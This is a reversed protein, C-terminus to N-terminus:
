AATAMALSMMFYLPNFLVLMAENWGLVVMVGYMWYPVQAISSVTSRKAEVYYADADRRFRATIDLSKFESFIILSSPFDFDEESTSSGTTDSPPPPPTYELSPDVPSIKSYLPILALTQEKAKRFEGDIDDDPQWVRPVGQDDYRFREEFHSRLKGLIVNDAAQEDIKARLALWARQHLSSLAVANEDETCNFAKAKKLYSSEANNLLQKFAGLVRDWMDPAAKNLAVDVPESIQRKFNREILNVMKKTEDKRCIDAVNGMEERLLGMEEEWSWENEEICAEKAGEQFKTEYNGTAKGVVDAFNYGDGNLAAHLASKFASLCVKHLNKLQSLFLPSLISAITAHLDLRKRSYVGQHYRSADRDYRALAQDRWDRMLGGLGEVVRGAEVTRKQSKAQQNFEALATASIEDCRFQALLEQQTPLDLDKNTQVQEWINEMYLAVGDAPIRKHYVDKFLYDGRGKMTFRERLLAVEDEFRQAELIKHPLTTFSLDFYDSLQAHELAPPKSLSDWIRTLDATLTNQLNSLPTVNLHDRIVFLLLTRSQPGDQARKGFLGLNVEFVTKLLGMNAGQYLGVQHEWLNIIMVESSALSFLASKREFDQDEGRERGDTGEVDMVMVGMGKGRCMWIGKTTQQRKTEDMVDFTTGFLRNLLTSKGTSQSGFVAVINYNFGANRLGWREIQAALDPTFKKDDDIIQTRESTGDPVHGNLKSSSAPMGTPELRSTRTEGNVLFDGSTSHPPVIQTDLPDSM